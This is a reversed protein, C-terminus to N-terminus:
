APKYARVWDILLAGDPGTLTNEGNDGLAFLIAQKASVYEHDTTDITRMLVGDLYYQSLGEPTRHLTARIWRNAWGDPPTPQGNNTYPETDIDGIDQVGHYNISANPGYEFIDNEGSAPWDPGSTWFAGWNHFGNANGPAYILAEVVHGREMWYGDSDPNYDIATSIVAGYTQGDDEESLTLQLHPNEAQNIITVNGATSTVGNMERGDQIHWRNLGNDFRDEFILEWTGDPGLPQKAPTLNIEAQGTNGNDDTITINLKM